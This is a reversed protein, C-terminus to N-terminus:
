FIKPDLFLIQARLINKTPFMKQPQFKQPGFDKQLGFNKPPELFNKPRIKKAIWFFNQPWFKKPALFTPPSLIYKLDFINKSPTKCIELSYEDCGVDRM